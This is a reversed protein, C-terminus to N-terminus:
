PQYQMGATVVNGDEDQVVRILATGSEPDADMAATIEAILAGCTDTKENLGAPEGGSLCSSGDLSVTITEGTGRPVEAFGETVWEQVEGTLQLGDIETVGVMTTHVVPADGSLFLTESALTALYAVGVHDSLFVGAGPIWVEALEFTAGSDCTAAWTASEADHGDVEITEEGVPEVSVVTAAPDPACVLVQPDRMAAQDPKADLGSTIRFGFEDCGTTTWAETTSVCTIAGAETGPNEGMSVAMWEGQEVLDIWHGGGIPVAFESVDGTDPDETSPTDTEPDDASTAEEETPSTTEDQTPSAEEETPTTTEDQAPLSAQDRTADDEVTPSDAPPLVSADPTLGGSLAFATAAAAAVLAVGGGGGALLRRTRRRRGERWATAALDVTPQPGGTSDPRLADSMVRDFDRANM